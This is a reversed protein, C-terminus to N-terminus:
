NVGRWDLPGTGCGSCHKQGKYLPASCRECYYTVASADELQVAPNGAEVTAEPQVVIERRDTEGSEGGSGPNPVGGQGGQGAHGAGGSGGDQESLANGGEKERYYDQVSKGEAKLRATLEQTARRKPYLFDPEEKRPRGDEPRRKGSGAPM